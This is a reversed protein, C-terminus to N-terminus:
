VGGMGLLPLMINALDLIKHHFFFILVTGAGTILLPWRCAAPSYVRPIGSNIYFAKFVIPLFYAANLFSSILIVALLMMHGGQFAGLALYWKSVFGGFPPLGIVSLSGVAFLGFTWPMARGLGRMESINAKGTAVFITGACFFLTIKGFAHTVIHLLAGTLALPTMIGVGLVIYSLQGITSFALRRKLNDQSLAILSATIITVSAIVCIIDNLNLAMFIDAGFGTLARYISFAGVKVVAVAHLLASVPTPAVMAAPLWAHLPMVGAKSFGFLLALGMVVASAPKMVGAALGVAYFDLSGTLIYIVIIAPLVFAISPGMIYLIYKRGSTRAAVDQHHTVLPWTALSLIEYFMYLTLLNDALAVGFTAFLSVAFFCNFRRQGHEHLTQMYGKSFVATVMWLGAAVMGFILGAGDLRFTLGVNPLLEVLTCNLVVGKLILPAASMVLLLNIFGAIVAIPTHAKTNPTAAIIIAALLPPLLPLAPLLSYYIIYASM